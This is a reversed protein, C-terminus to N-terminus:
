NLSSIRKKVGDNEEKQTINNVIFLYERKTKAKIINIITKFLTVLYANNL